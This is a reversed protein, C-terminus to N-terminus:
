KGSKKVALNREERTLETVKLILAEQAPTLVQKRRGMATRATDLQAKPAVKFLRGDIFQTFSPV